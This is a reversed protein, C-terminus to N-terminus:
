FGAKHVCRADAVVHDMVLEINGNAAAVIVDPKGAIRAAAAAQLIRFCHPPPPPSFHPLQQRRAEWGFTSCCADIIFVFAAASQVFARVQLRDFSGSMVRSFCLAKWSSATRYYVNFSAPATSFRHCTMATVGPMVRARQTPWLAVQTHPLPPPPQRLEARPALTRSFRFSLAHMLQLPADVQRLQAPPIRMLRGLFRDDYEFKFSPASPPLEASVHVGGQM